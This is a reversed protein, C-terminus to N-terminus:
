VESLKAWVAGDSGVHTAYVKLPTPPAKEKLTGLLSRVVGGERPCWTVVAGSRLDYVTGDLPVEALV